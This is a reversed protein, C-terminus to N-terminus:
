RLIIRKKTTDFQRNARAANATQQAVPPASATERRRPSEVAPSVRLIPRATPVIEVYGKRRKENIKTNMYRQAAAPTDMTKTESQGNTGRRGFRVHVRVGDVRVEWFKNASGAVCEFRRM